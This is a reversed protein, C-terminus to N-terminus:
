SSGMECAQITEKGSRNEPTIVKELILLFLQMISWLWAAMKFIM